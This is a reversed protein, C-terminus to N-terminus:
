QGKRKTPIKTSWMPSSSAPAVKDGRGGQTFSSAPEIPQSQAPVSPTESPQTAAPASISITPGIPEFSFQSYDLDDMLRIPEPAPAAVKAAELAASGPEPEIILPEEETEPKSAASPTLLLSDFEEQEDDEVRAKSKESEKSTKKKSFASKMKDWKSMEPLVDYIGAYSRDIQAPDGYKKNYAEIRRSEAERNLRRQETDSLLPVWVRDKMAISGLREVEKYAPHLVHPFKRCLIPNHHHFLIVNVDEDITFLEYLSLLERKGEGQNKSRLASALPSEIAEHRETSVEITTTGVRKAIIDGTVEDNIGLILWTSCNALITWYTDHYRNQLQTIDQFIMIISLNRKRVTSMKKDWDPLTGLSPFEDLLFNVPVKTEGGPQEDAYNILNIFLMSFFLSVIFRYTEHNDPMVCFYVCPREAPLLLDIDDTSLLKRVVTNQMVQLQVSLNTLLNGRLNPSGQKFSMYPGLCPREEETLAEPDFLSDLFEEGLPNQLYDYVTAINKKEPPIDHGLYVRLLLAKLLSQPGTAYISDTDSMINSIVVQSFLQADLEATEPHISKLCDWGDSRQPKTLDLRRVVYGHAMFYKGLDRFLGGDPDSLVISERRKVAQYCFNKTFTFTKGTGSAGIVAMHNNLRQGNKMKFNVVQKGDRTLQGFITGVADEPSQVVAVNKYEDPKEFHSDGYTANGTHKFERGAEDKGKMAKRRNFYFILVMLELGGTLILFIMWPFGRSSISQMMVSPSWADTFHGDFVSNLVLALYAGIFIVAVALFKAQKNLQEKRENM